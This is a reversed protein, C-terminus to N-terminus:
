DFQVFFFKGLVVLDANMPECGPFTNLDDLRLALSTPKYALSRLQMLEDSHQDFRTIFGKGESVKLEFPSTTRPMFASNINKQEVTAKYISIIDGIKYAFACNVIFHESGWVSVNIIHAKTDRVTFTIVGMNAGNRNFTRKETKAIILGNIFFSNANLILDRIRCFAFAM